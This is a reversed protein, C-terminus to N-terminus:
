EVLAEPNYPHAQIWLTPAVRATARWRILTSPYFPIRQTSQPSHNKAM